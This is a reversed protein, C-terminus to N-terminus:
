IVDDKRGWTASRESIKKLVAKAAEDDSGTLLDRLDLIFIRLALIEDYRLAAQSINARWDIQEQMQEEYSKM